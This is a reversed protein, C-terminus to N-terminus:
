RHWLLGHRHVISLGQNRDAIASLEALAANESAGSPLDLAKDARVAAPIAEQVLADADAYGCTTAMTDLEASSPGIHRAAFPVSM